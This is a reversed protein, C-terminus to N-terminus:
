IKKVIKDELLEIKKEEILKTLSAKFAKKSLKFVNKIDEAESKYTFPLEGGKQILIKM